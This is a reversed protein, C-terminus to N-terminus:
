CFIFLSLSRNKKVAINYGLIILNGIDCAVPPFYAIGLRINGRQFIGMVVVIGTIKGNELIIRSFPVQYGTDPKVGIGSRM